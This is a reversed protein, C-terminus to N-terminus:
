KRLFLNKGLLAFILLMFSFIGGYFWYTLLLILLTSTCLAWFKMIAKLVFHAIIGITSTTIANDLTSDVNWSPLEDDPKHKSNQGM